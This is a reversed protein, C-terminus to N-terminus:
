AISRKQEIQGSRLPLDCIRNRGPACLALINM